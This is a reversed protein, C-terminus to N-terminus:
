VTGVFISQKKLFFKAILKNNCAPSHKLMARTGHTVFKQGQFVLFVSNKCM